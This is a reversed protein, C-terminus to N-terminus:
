TAEIFEGKNFYQHKGLSWSANRTIFIYKTQVACRLMHVCSTKKRTKNHM